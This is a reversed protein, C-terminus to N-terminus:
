ATEPEPRKLLAMYRLIDKWSVIGIPLGAANVVPLCSLGQEVLLKIAHEVPEGSPMVVPYRSMVQHAKKRLTALDRANACDKNVNPSLAKLCDRDSIIGVLTHDDEIVLLHHFHEQNFIRYIKGLDDDMAVSVVRRTMIADIKM